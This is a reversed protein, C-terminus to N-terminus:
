FLEDITMLPDLSISNFFLTNPFISEKIAHMMIDM